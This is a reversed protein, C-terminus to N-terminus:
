RTLVQSPRTRQRLGSRTVDEVGNTLNGKGDATFSGAISLANGTSNFGNFEFAYNGNLSSLNSVTISLAATATMAPSESDQVEVTFPFTGGETATGSIAGDAALSLGPPLTGSLVFWTFPPVGGSAQLTTAPYPGNLSAAPLSTTSVALPLPPGIAITLAKTAAGGTSDTVKITFNSNVQATPTGSITASRGTTSALALGPSLSGGSISWNFPPVGGAATVTATYPSGYNGGPLSSTTISAPPEVTIQITATQAPYDVASAKVTVVTEATVSAPATYTVSTKAAGTLSGGGTLTWSVGANTTDNSVTATVLATGGQLIVPSSTALTVKNFNAPAGACGNCGGGYVCAAFLFLYGLYLGARRSM